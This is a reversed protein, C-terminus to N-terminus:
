EGAPAAVVTTGRDVRRVDFYRFGEGQNSYRVQYVGGEATEYQLVNPAVEQVTSMLIPGDPTITNAQTARFYDVPAMQTKDPRGDPLCGVVALCMVAALLWGWTRTQHLNV